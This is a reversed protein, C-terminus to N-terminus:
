DTSIEGMGVTCREANVVLVKPISSKTELSARERMTVTLFIFSSFATLFWFCCNSFCADNTFEPYEQFVNCNIHTIEFLIRRFCVM